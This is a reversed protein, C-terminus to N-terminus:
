IRYRYNIMVKGTACLKSMYHRSKRVLRHVSGINGEQIAREIKEICNETEAGREHKYMEVLMNRMHQLEHYFLAEEKRYKVMIIIKECAEVLEKCEAEARKNLQNYEKAIIRFSRKNINERTISEHYARYAYLCDNYRVLCNCKKLVEISYDCDEGIRKESFAVDKILERRYLRGWVTHRIKNSKAFLEDKNLVELGGDCNKFTNKTELMYVNGVEVIDAGYNEMLEVMKSVYSKSVYDDADVYTLLEGTAVAAGSNRAIGPGSNIQHITKVWTYKSAYEDCIIGSGDSSGDDVLIVELEPYIQRIISNMCDKIYRKCNYVPIVISVKKM